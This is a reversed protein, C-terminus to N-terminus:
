KRLADEASRIKADLTEFGSKYKFEGGSFAPQRLEKTLEEIPIPSNPNKASKELAGVKEQLLQNASVLRKSEAELDNKIEKTQSVASSLQIKANAIEISVSSAKYAIVLLGVTSVVMCFSLSHWFTNPIHSTDM